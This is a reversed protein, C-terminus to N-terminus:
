QFVEQWDGRVKEFESQAAVWDQMGLLKIQSLDLLYPAAAEPPQYGERFSYIAEGEVFIDTGEKSLPKTDFRRRAKSAAGCWYRCYVM